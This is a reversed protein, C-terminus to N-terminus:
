GLGTVQFGLKKLVELGSESGGWCIKMWASKARVVLPGGSVAPKVEAASSGLAPVKGQVM